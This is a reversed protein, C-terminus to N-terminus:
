RNHKMLMRKSIENKHQFWCNGRLVSCAQIKNRIRVGVLGVLSAGFLIITSPEPVPTPLNRHGEYFTASVEKLIIVEDRSCVPKGGIYMCFFGEGNWFYGSGSSDDYSPTTGWGLTSAGGTDLGYGAFDKEGDNGIVITSSTESWYQPRILFYQASENFEWKIDSENYHNVYYRDTNVWASPDLISDGSKTSVLNRIGIGEDDFYMSWMLKDGSPITALTSTTHPADRDIYAEWIATIMLANATTAFILSSLVVIYFRM